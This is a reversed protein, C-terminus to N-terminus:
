FVECLDKASHGRVVMSLHGGSSFQSVSYVVQKRSVVFKLSM